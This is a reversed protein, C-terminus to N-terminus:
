HVSSSGMAKQAYWNEEVKYTWEKEFGNQSKGGSHNRQRTAARLKQQSTHAGWEASGRSVQSEGRQIKM